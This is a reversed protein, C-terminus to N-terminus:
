QQFSILIESPIILFFIVIVGNCYFSGLGRQPSMAWSLAYARDFFGNGSGEGRKVLFFLFVRMEKAM